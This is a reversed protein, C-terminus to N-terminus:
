KPPRLRQKGKPEHFVKRLQQPVDNGHQELKELAAGAQGAEAEQLWAAQKTEFDKLYCEHLRQICDSLHHQRDAANSPPLSKSLLRDLLESLSPDLSSRLGAVDACDITRAVLERVGTDQFYDLSLEECRCKLDPNQLLLTLCYEEIERWGSQSPGANPAQYQPRPQRRSLATKLRQESDRLDQESVSAAQALKKRLDNRKVPDNMAAILPLMQNVLASRGRPERLDLGAAKVKLVYDMAPVAADVLARWTSPDGMIVEDPDKGAPLAMVSLEAALPENRTIGPQAAVIEDLARGINEIGRLTAEAGAADPDLALTFRRTLKKLIAIQKETLSTGMSAVVNNFEHQHAMIVDMYGEVIVVRDEDKIATKARDVGYLTSSKDFVASQPSNMYKPMADDLARGGFGTIRGQTDRIPFMLRNRFRDYSGGGEREIVLGAALVDKEAHGHAQLDNKLTDWSDPSYGLQFASLSALTLGRKELYARAREGNATATLAHHFFDAAAANIRFLKDRQAEEETNARPLKVGTQEALLRIAQGFDLGEKKMVFAIVDGGTACAGFCHWRQQDPFVFFSAHKESHFPCLAKYNRGTKELKVSYQSLVDVIDAKQKIEDTATM